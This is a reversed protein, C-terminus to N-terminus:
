VRCAEGGSLLRRDLGLIYLVEVMNIRKGNLGPRKVTEKGLVCLKKGDGVTVQVGADLSEYDFLDGRPPTM